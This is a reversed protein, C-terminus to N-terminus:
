FASVLFQFSSIPSPFSSIPFQFSSGSCTGRSTKQSRVESEQDTLPTPLTARDSWRTETSAPHTQIARGM